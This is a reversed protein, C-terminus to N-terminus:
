LAQFDNESTTGSQLVHRERTSLGLKDYYDLIASLTDADRLQGAVPADLQKPPDVDVRRSRNTHRMSQAVPLKAM